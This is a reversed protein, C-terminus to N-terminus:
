ERGSLGTPVQFQPRALTFVPDYVKNRLRSKQDLGLQTSITLRQKILTQPLFFVYPTYLAPKAVCADFSDL